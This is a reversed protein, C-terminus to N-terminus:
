LSQSMFEAPCRLSNQQESMISCILWHFALEVFTFTGSNGCSIWVNNSKKRFQVQILIKRYYVDAKSLWHENMSNSTQQLQSTYQTTRSSYISFLILHWKREKLEIKVAQLLRECWLMWMCLEDLSTLHIWVLTILIGRFSQENMGVAAHDNSM